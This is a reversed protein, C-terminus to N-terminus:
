SPIAVPQSPVPRLAAERRSGSLWKISDVAGCAPCAARWEPQPTGCETCRWEPDPEALAAQRLADRQAAHGEESDGHEAEAIDALLMWLRRENMGAKQAAEAQHRAEGTLGAALSTQALLFHSEPSDPN